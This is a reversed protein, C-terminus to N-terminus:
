TRPSSRRRGFIPTFPFFPALFTPVGVADDAFLSMMAELDKAEITVFARTVLVHLSTNTHEIM